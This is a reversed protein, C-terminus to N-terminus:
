ADRKKSKKLIEKLGKKTVISYDTRFDFVEHLKDTIDTRTYAPIYGEGTIERMEMDKLTDLIESTTYQNGLKKELYRYVVLALYCTLFHAKIRGQNSVYVPRTEFDTKMIRFCEEIKWRYKNIKVINDVTDDLDTCVAYFGDYQKEHDIREQNLVLTHKEAIEGDNTTSIRSVFRRYDNANKKALKSAGSKIAIQARSIQGERIKQQYNRYKVSYTVILKEEFDGHDVWREKYFVRDHYKEEDIKEINFTKSYEKSKEAGTIKWGDPDIAWDHLEKKLKKISQTVVFSKNQISNYRKNANSSLGADACFIFQSLGYDKMIKRELPKVTIQENTNGPHICMALPIGDSDIFMGMEVIPLPRNEKGKGFQRLEGPQDPEETEFFFNTCDYYIVGTNRKGLSFSNKYLESQIFDFEDSLVDLSRYVQHLDFDPKEILTKSFEFTSKKSSPNIIRGYILNSLISNLNYDFKHKASIDKCIKDIGLEYYIKQPFLYGINFKYQFNKEILKSKSFKVIVDKEELAEKENLEAVHQKAWVDPDMGYKARIDNENGLKEVTVSHEKGKADYYTKIVYFLRGKSTNTTRIRM